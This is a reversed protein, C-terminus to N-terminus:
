MVDTQGRKSREEVKLSRPSSRPDVQIVWSGRRRTTLQNAVKIGDAV